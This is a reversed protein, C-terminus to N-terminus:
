KILNAERFAREMLDMEFISEQLDMVFKYRDQESDANLTALVASDTKRTVQIGYKFVPTHFLTVEMGRLPFSERYNYIHNGNSKGAAKTMVMMDNFLWIDRPHNQSEMEKKTNIDLVEALRCLCVLRRHSEALQPAKGTLNAQLLNTQAVHDLGSSFPQKKIGKYVSKLLKHDFDHGDDALKLNNMFEKDLMKKDSKLNPTHLDTNLLMIAFALTVVSEQCKLKSAFSPNCKNFRKGFVEMIKEIKQAEGPVKVYDLLQRLAKDIRQGSFDFEEMFVSLVKMCFASQLQGLYEGVKAKALGQNKNLFKAVSLPSLEIFNQKVLYDIGMDPNTNFLNLGVRFHRKKEVELMLERFEALAKSKNTPTRRQKDVLAPHGGRTGGAQLNLDESSGRSSEIQAYIASVSDIAANRLNKVNNTMELYPSMANEVSGTGGQRQVASYLLNMYESDPNEPAFVPRDPTMPHMKVYVGSHSTMSTNASHNGMSCMSANDPDGIQSVSRHENPSPASVSYNPWTFMLESSPSLPSLPLEPDSPVSSAGSDSSGTSMLSSRHLFPKPRSYISNDSDNSLNLNNPRMMDSLRSSTRKPPLPPLPMNPPKPWLGEARRMTGPTRSALPIQHGLGSELVAHSKVSPPPPPIEGMVSAVDSQDMDDLSRHHNMAYPAPMKFADIHPANPLPTNLNKMANYMQEVEAIGAPIHQSSFSLRRSPSQPLEHNPLTMAPRSQWCVGSTTPPSSLQFGENQPGHNGCNLCDKQAHQQQSQKKRPLTGHSYASRQMSTLGPSRPMSGSYLDTIATATSGRSSNSLGSSFSDSRLRSYGQNQQPNNNTWNEKMDQCLSKFSDALLGEVTNQETEIYNQWRQQLRPGQKHIHGPSPPQRLAMVPDMIESGNRNKANDESIFLGCEYEGTAQAVTDQRSVASSERRAATAPPLRAASPPSGGGGCLLGM